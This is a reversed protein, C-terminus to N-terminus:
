IIHKEGTADKTPPLISIPKPIKLIINNAVNGDLAFNYWFNAYRGNAHTGNIKPACCIESPKTQISICLSSAM